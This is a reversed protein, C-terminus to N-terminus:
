FGLFYPNSSISIDHIYIYQINLFWVVTPNMDAPRYHARRTFSEQRTVQMHTRPRFWDQYAPLAEPGYHVRLTQLHFNCRANQFNEFSDGPRYSCRYLSPQPPRQVIMPTILPQPIFQPYGFQRMVRDPM